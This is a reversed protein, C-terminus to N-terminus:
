VVSKRDKKDLIKMFEEFVEDYSYKREEKIAKKNVKQKAMMALTPLIITVPCINGRGDKLQPNQGPEANIDFGNSTRCGMTSFYTKPDNRDYGKNVSWDVNAYNPYLRQSTSKLALKFLDYNPDGEEMNVGKMCQFIGCPFISTVGHTGLGEISVELLAKTVM